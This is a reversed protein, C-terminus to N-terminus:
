EFAILDYAYSGWDFTGMNSLDFNSIDFWPAYGSYFRVRKEGARIPGLGVWMAFDPLRIRTETGKAILRWMSRGYKESITINYVGIYPVEGEYIWDLLLKKMGGGELPSRFVPFPLFPTLLLAPTGVVLTEGNGLEGVDMSRMGRPVSIKEWGGSETFRYAVGAMGAAWFNAASGGRLRRIQADVPAVLDVWTGDLEQRFVGEEGALVLRGDAFAEITWWDGAAPSDLRRLGQDYEMLTGQSGAILYRGEGFSSVGRLDAAVSQVDVVGDVSVVVRHSGVALWNDSDQGAVDLLDVETVSGLSKWNGGMKMGVSGRNGVAIWTGDPLAEIAQWEDVTVSPETRFEGDAYRVVRGKAGALLAEDGKVAISNLEWVPCDDREEFGDSQLLAAGASDLDTVDVAYVVSYPSQEGIVTYAGGIFIYRADYLEGTLSEPMNKLVLDSPVLGAFSDPLAFYGDSGLELYGEVRYQGSYNEFLPPSDLRLRLSRNLPINLDVNQNTLQAGPAVNIHRKIGMALPHFQGTRAGVYGGLCVIAVEGLRSDLLFNGDPDAVKFEEGFASKGMYPTSIQCHAERRGQEPACISGLAGLPSCTYGVPCEPMGFACSRSCYFRGRELEVCELGDSCGREPGCPACLGDEGAEADACSGPPLVVYKNLGGVFGQVTGPLLEPPPEVEGPTPPDNPILYVTVNEGDTQIISAADWGPKFAHVDVPGHLHLSSLTVQGRPDTTGKFHTSVDHGLVVSAEELGEWTMANLVTVNVSGDIQEGWVGGNIGLPDFYTYANELAAMGSPTGVKVGVTGVEAAPTRVVIRSYSVVQIERATAVGFFVPSTPSFGAGLVEVQTEGAQSGYAPRVAYVEAVKVTFLFGGRLLAQGSASLLRVDVLGPSGPPTVFQVEEASVVKQELAPFPGVMVQVDEPIRKGRLVVKTGGGVDGSAPSLKDITLSEVYQFGKPIVGQGVGVDVLGKGSPTKVVVTCQEEYKELVEAQSGGFSVTPETIAGLVAECDVISVREGGESSGSGPMVRSGGPVGSGSLYVFAKELADWGWTGTATISVTGSGEPVRIKLKDNSKALIEADANGVVVRTVTTLWRGRLTIVDGPRGAAPEASLLEPAVTFTYARKKQYTGLENSILVDVPGGEEGPPTIALMTNEDVVQISMALRRGVVLKTEPTFGTGTVKFPSGGSIPGINPEVGDVRLESFFLFGSPLTRTQGSPWWVHVDAAGLRHVPTVVRLKKSNVLFVEQAEVEDFYVRVSENFGWGEIFVLEGGAPSGNDPDVRLIGTDELPKTDQGEVDTVIDAPILGSYISGIRPVTLDEPTELGCATGLVVIAGLLALRAKM